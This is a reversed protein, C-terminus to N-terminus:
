EWGPNQSLKPNIAKQGLPIPFLYHKPSTFFRSAATQAVIFGNGDVNIDKGVVMAPYSAQQFRAGLVVQPLETEAQKWRILDYYRFGEGALEVRRERRIEQLMNLQIGAPNQGAVFSNTLPPMNVRNRLRNVSLNLDADSISGSLEYTAEAYNLLVEGTRLLIQDTYVFTTSLAKPDGPKKAWYGTPTVKLDPLLPVGGFNTGPKWITIEMRPDRDTFEETLTSYGKFLPSHQIPLGDTCLFADALYKTPNITGDLVMGRGLPSTGTTNEKYWKALAIESHNENDESYLKTFDSILPYENENIYDLAAQKAVQLRAAPNGANHYKAFTGEFLAVRSLFGLATGRTIRGKDAATLQAKKPLKSAADQLDAIIQNVVQERPTREGNLEPSSFDLTKLILPVDGFRRLLNFYLYARFFMAEGSYRNKIAETVTANDVNELFENARRIGTFSNNWVGDANSIVHTGSSVSNTGRQFYDVSWNDLTADLDLFSYLNNTVLRLDAETKWFSSSSIQDLPSKELVDECALLIAATLIIYALKKMDMQM